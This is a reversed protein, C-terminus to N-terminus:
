PVEEKDFSLEGLDLHPPIYTKEESPDAKVKDYRVPQHPAYLGPSEKHRVTDRILQVANLREMRKPNLSAGDSSIYSIIEFDESLRGRWNVKISQFGLGDGIGVHKEHPHTDLSPTSPDFSLLRITTSHM